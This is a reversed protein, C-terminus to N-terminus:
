LFLLQVCLKQSDTDASDPRSQRGRLNALRHSKRRSFQKGFQCRDQPARWGRLLHSEPRREFTGLHPSMSCDGFANSRGARGRCVSRGRHGRLNHRPRRGPLEAHSQRHTPGGVVIKVKPNHARIFRVMESVPFNMLYFTTTIAVCLPNAALYKILEEKEYQFLNIYHANLGRKRLFHTLYVAALNPIECSKFPEVDDAAEDPQRDLGFVHNLLDIYNLKKGDLNVFSFMLDRYAESEVGYKALLGEYEEFPTENYGIVICDLKNHLM